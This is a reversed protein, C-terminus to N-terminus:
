FLQAQEAQEEGAPEGGEVPIPVVLQPGNNRVNNVETSVPFATLRGPAAPV